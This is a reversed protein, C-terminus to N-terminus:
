TIIISGTTKRISLEALGKRFLYFDSISTKHNYCLDDIGSCDNFEFYGSKETRCICLCNECEVPKKVEFEKKEGTPSETEIRRNQSAFSILAQNKNLQILQTTESNIALNEIQENLANFYNISQDKEERILVKDVVNLLVILVLIGIVLGIIFKLGITVGAKKDM